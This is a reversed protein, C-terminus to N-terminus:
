RVYWIACAYLKRQTAVYCITETLYFTHTICDIYGVSKLWDNKNHIIYYPIFDKVVHIKKAMGGSDSMFIMGFKVAVLVMVYNM